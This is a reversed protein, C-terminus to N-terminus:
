IRPRGKFFLVPQYIQVLWLTLVITTFIPSAVFGMPIFVIQVPVFKLMLLIFIVFLTRWIYRNKVNSWPIFFFIGFVVKLLNSTVGKDKLIDGIGIDLLSLIGIVVYALGWLMGIFRLVIQWSFSYNKITM